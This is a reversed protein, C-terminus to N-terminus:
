RKVRGCIETPQGRKNRSIMEHSRDVDHRGLIQDGLKLGSRFHWEETGAQDNM